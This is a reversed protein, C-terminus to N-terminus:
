YRKTNIDALYQVKLIDRSLDDTETVSLSIKKGKGAVAGGSKVENSKYGCIDCVTSMIVVEKFYPIDVLKM